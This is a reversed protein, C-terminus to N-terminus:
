EKVRIYTETLQVNEEGIGMDKLKEIGSQILTDGHIEVTFEFTNGEYARATCFELYETYKDEVLTYRGGGAGFHLLAKSTDASPVNHNLFAFHDENIIKIMKRGPADTRIVSDNKESTASLLQWTGVISKKDAAVEPKSCAILLFPLIILITSRNM